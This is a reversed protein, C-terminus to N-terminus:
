IIVDSMVNRHQKYLCFFYSSDTWSKKNSIYFTSKFISYSVQSLNESSNFKTNPVSIYLRFHDCIHHSTPGYCKKQSQLFLFTTLLSIMVVFFNLIWYCTSNWVLSDDDSYLFLDSSITQFFFYHWPSCHSSVDVFVNSLKQAFM